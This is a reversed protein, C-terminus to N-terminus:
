QPLHKKRAPGLAEGSSLPDTGPLPEWTIAPYVRELENQMTQARQTLMVFDRHKEEYMKRWTFTDSDGKSRGIWYFVFADIFLILAVLGGYVIAELM